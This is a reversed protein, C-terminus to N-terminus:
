IAIINKYDVKGPAGKENERMWKNDVLTAKIGRWLWRSHAANLQPDCHTYASPHYGNSTYASPKGYPTMYQLQMANHDTYMKSLRPHFFQAVTGLSTAGQSRM